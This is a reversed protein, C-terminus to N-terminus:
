GRLESLGGLKQSTSVAGDTDAVVGAFPAVSTGAPVFTEIVNLSGTFAAAPQYEIEHAEVPEWVAVCLPPGCVYVSSGSTLKPTFSVHVTVTLAPCTASMSASSGGSLM